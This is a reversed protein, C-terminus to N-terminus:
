FVVGGTAVNYLITYEVTNNNLTYVSLKQTALRASYLETEGSYCLIAHLAVQSENLSWNSHNTAPMRQAVSKHTKRIFM